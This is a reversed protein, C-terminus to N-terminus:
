CKEQREKHINLLKQSDKLNLYYKTELNHQVM